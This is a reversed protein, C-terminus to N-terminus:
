KRDASSSLANLSCISANLVPSLVRVSSYIRKPPFPSVVACPSIRQSSSKDLFIGFLHNKIKKENNRNIFIKHDTTCINSFLSNDQEFQPKIKILEENIDYQFTDLVKNFKGDKTLVLDNVKINKIKQLGKNTVVLSSETFCGRGSPTIIGGLEKGRKIIEYNLLFYDAMDTNLIVQAEEQVAKIYEQRKENTINNTKIFKVFEQNIIDKFMQNKEEQTKEPYITPLKMNRDFEIDEFNLTINTNEMAEIIEQSTFVGQEVFREYIVQNTPYDLYWNVEAEHYKIHKSALLDNRNEVEKQTLLHSDLGVIMKIKYEKHLKLIKKNIEIQESTNHNQIELMFNDGFHKYMKLWIEEINEYKWGAICSSTIFVDNPNLKNFILDLDIRAKYYYGDENAISLIENIDQMGNKNKALLVIHSNTNDKELRDKVWYAETGFIFKLDYKKAIEWCYHYRGQWGHAVSSLIKGGNKITHKALMEYTMASDMIIPNTDDTHKHYNQVIPLNM